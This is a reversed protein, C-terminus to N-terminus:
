HAKLTGHRTSEEAKGLYVIMMSHDPEAFILSQYALWWHNTFWWHLALMDDVSDSLAKTWLKPFTMWGLFFLSKSGKVKMKHYLWDIPIPWLYLLRWFVILVIVVLADRQRRTLREIVAREQRCKSKPNFNSSRRWCYCPPVALLRSFSKRLRFPSTQVSSRGRPTM